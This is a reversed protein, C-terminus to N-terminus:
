HAIIVINQTPRKKFLYFPLLLTAICFPVLAKFYMKTYNSKLFYHYEIRKLGLFIIIAFAISIIMITLIIYKVNKSYQLSKQWTYVLVGIGIVLIFIIFKLLLIFEPSFSEVLRRTSQFTDKNNSYQVKIKNYGEITNILFVLAAISCCILVIHYFRIVINRFNLSEEM